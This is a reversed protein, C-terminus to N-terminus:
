MKQHCDETPKSNKGHDMPICGELFGTMSSIVHSIITQEGSGSPVSYLNKTSDEVTDIWHKEQHTKKFVWTEDLYDIRFGDQRHKQIWETYNDRM